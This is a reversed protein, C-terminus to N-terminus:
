HECVYYSMLQDFHDIGGMSNNYEVVAQPKKIGAKNTIEIMEPGFETSLLLVDRKDHWKLVCVREDSWRCIVEGKRLKKQLVEAPNNKRNVRLTGTTHTKEALLQTSLDVSNYFNDLFISHGKNKFDDLLHNVVKGTHGAGGVDRDASGAYIHLRLVLGSPETLMYIKIGHKHKKGQIYQHFILRGRWLVMSEDLSLNKNPYEVDRMIKHFIDIMPRIKYLRDAPEQQNELPNEAFHLAQMILLFRDRSM